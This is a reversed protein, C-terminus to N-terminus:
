FIEYKKAMLAGCEYHFNCNELLNEIKKRFRNKKHLIALNKLDEKSFAYDIRSSLDGVSLNKLADEFNSRIKVTEKIQDLHIYETLIQSRYKSSLIMAIIADESEPFNLLISELDSKLWLAATDLQPEEADKYEPYYTKWILLDLDKIDQLIERKKQAILMREHCECEHKTIFKKGDDAIYEIRM